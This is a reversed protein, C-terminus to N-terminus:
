KPANRNASKITTKNFLRVSALKLPKLKKHNTKRRIPVSIGLNNSTLLKKEFLFTQRLMSLFANHLASSFYNLFISMSPSSPHVPKGGQMHKLLGQASHSLM